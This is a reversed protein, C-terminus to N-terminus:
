LKSKKKHYVDCFHVLELKKIGQVIIECVEMKKKIPGGGGLHLKNVM